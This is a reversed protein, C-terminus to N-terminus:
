EALLYEVLANTKQVYNSYYSGTGPGNFGTHIKKVKGDRGIFISTPFSIIENLMNFHEGALSKKANGGVLFTFDIDLKNKLREISKSYDDFSDGAEYGISIIELGMSNYKEYLSKYYMSEDLCNPCWSGMIQIIVVKNKVEENPFNYSDGKLTKLQFSVSSSDTLYTLDDPSTLEFDDNQKAEWESNWHTGSFFKGKLVGNNNHAKFLFAHSGDFCSLYLSDKISNGALYRYDGTETLFTGYVENKNEEQAFVGVAPYSSETNPEFEVEWRGNFNVSTTKKSAMSFQYSKKRQASFPITYNDGKNFNQWYGTIAKKNDIAFVLESNFYPFRVHLSDNLLIPGELQIHEDGNVVSFSYLKKKKEIIMYFPLDDQDNLNLEAIWKGRKIKDIQGNQSHSFNSFVLFILLPILRMYQKQNFLFLTKLLM